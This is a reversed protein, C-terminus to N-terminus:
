STDNTEIVKIISDPQAKVAGGIKGCLDGLKIMTLNYTSDDPKVVENEPFQAFYEDNLAKRLSDSCGYPITIFDGCLATSFLLSVAVFITKM